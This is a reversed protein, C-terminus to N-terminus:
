QLDIIFLKIIKELKERDTVIRCGIRTGRKGNQVAAVSVHDVVIDVTLPRGGDSIKVNPLRTGACVPIADDGVLFARGDLSMDVLRVEFSIVGLWLDCRVDPESPLKTAQSRRNPQMALVIPPAAMRVAPQGAHMVQVPKTCAFAFQAGRHNSMFTVSRSALLASNGPKHDGFAVTLQQHVPDLTLLRTLFMVDPLKATVPAADDVM